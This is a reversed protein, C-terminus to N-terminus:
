PLAPGTTREGSALSGDKGAKTWLQRGTGGSEIRVKSSALLQRPDPSSCSAPRFASAQGRLRRGRLEENSQPSPTPRRPCYPRPMSPLGSRAGGHLSVRAAGDVLAQCRATRGRRVEIHTLREVRDIDSFTLPETRQRWWKHEGTGAGGPTIARRATSRIGSRRRGDSAHLQIERRPRIAWQAGSPARYSEM